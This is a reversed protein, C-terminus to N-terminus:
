ETHIWEVINEPIPRPSLNLYNIHDRFSISLPELGVEFPLLERPLDLPLRKDETRRLITPIETLPPPTSSEQVNSLPNTVFDRRNEINHPELESNENHVGLIDLLQKSLDPREVKKRRYEM